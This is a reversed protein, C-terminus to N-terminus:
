SVQSCQKGPNPTINRPSIFSCCGRRSVEWLGARWKIRVPAARMVAEKSRQETASDHGVRQLGMSQLM